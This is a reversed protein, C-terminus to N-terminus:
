DILDYTWNMKQIETDLQRYEKALKDVEKQLSAIDVTRYYKVESRSYRDQQISAEHILDALVRRKLSITDRDALVEALTRGDDFEVISNTKNISKILKNLEKLLNNLEMLLENPNEPPEEGEQVKASRSLRIKLEDIKTQIDARLILGEALKM